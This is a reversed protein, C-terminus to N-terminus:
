GRAQTRGAPTTPKFNRDMKCLAQDYWPVTCADVLGQVDIDELQNFLINLNTPYPLDSM